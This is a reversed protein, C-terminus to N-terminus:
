TGPTGESDWDNLYERWYQKFEPTILFGWSQVKPGTIFLTWTTKGEPVVLRHWSTARRFLVSGEPRWTHTLGKFMRDRFIPQVETYGGRLLITIYPWPHDHLYRDDDSRLIHHVRVAVGLRNYPLLWYREMYGPLHRYPTKMARAIIRDALSM